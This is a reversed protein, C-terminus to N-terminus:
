ALTLEGRSTQLQLEIAPEAAQHVPMTLGLQELMCQAEAPQPHRLRLERLTVGRQLTAPDFHPRRRWEIFYPVVPDHVWAILYTRLFENGGPGTQDHQHDIPFTRLGRRRMAACTRQLDDVAVYWFLLRPEPLARLRPALVATMARPPVRSALWQARAPIPRPPLPLRLGKADRPGVVELIQDDGLRVAASLFPTRQDPLVFPQVGTHDALWACGAGFDPVAWAVHDM